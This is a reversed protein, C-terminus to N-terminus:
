NVSLVALAPGFPNFLEAGDEAKQGHSLTRKRHGALTCLVSMNGTQLIMHLSISSLISTNKLGSGKERSCNM